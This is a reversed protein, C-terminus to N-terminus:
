IILKLNELLYDLGNEKIVLVNKLLDGLRGKPWADKAQCWLLYNEPIDCILRGKYKGYPMRAKVISLLIAKDPKVEM